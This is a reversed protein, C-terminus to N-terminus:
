LLDSGRGAWLPVCIALEVETDHTCVGEGARFIAIVGVEAYVVGPATSNIRFIEKVFIESETDFSVDEAHAIACDKVVAEEAETVVVVPMTYPFEEARECKAERDGTRAEGRIEPRTAAADETAATRMIEIQVWGLREADDPSIEVLAGSPCDALKTTAKFNTEGRVDAQQIIEAPVNNRTGSVIEPHGASTEVERELYRQLKM